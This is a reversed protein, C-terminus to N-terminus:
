IGNKSEDLDRLYSYTFIGTNHGDSFVFNVAYNGVWDFDTIEVKPSVGRPGNTERCSACPCRMRLYFSTSATTTEDNWLTEAVNGAIGGKAPLRLTLNKPKNANIM